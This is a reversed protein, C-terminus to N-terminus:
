QAELAAAYASLVAALSTPGEHRVPDGGDFGLTLVAECPESDSEVMFYGCRQQVLGVLLAAAYNPTYFRKIASKMSPCAFYLVVSQSESQDVSVGLAELAKKPLDAFDEARYQHTM